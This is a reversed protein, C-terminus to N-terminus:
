QGYQQCKLGFSRTIIQLDTIVYRIGTKEHIIKRREEPQNITVPVYINNSALIGLAAVAQHWGRATSIAIPQRQINNKALFSAISVAKEALEGYSIKKNIGTDVIAIKDPNEKAM